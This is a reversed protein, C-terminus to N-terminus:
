GRPEGELEGELLGYAHHDRWGREPHRLMHRM